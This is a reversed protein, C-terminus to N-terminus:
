TMADLLAEIRTSVRNAEGTNDTVDIEVVPMGAWSHIRAVEAHWVDGTRHREPDLPIRQAPEARPDDYLLLTVAAAHRSFVAFRVAGPLITAGLPAPLGRRIRLGASTTQSPERSSSSM